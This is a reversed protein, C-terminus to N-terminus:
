GLLIGGAIAVPLVVWGLHLGGLQALQIQAVPATAVPLKIVSATFTQPLPSAIASQPPTVCSAIASSALLATALRIFNRAKRSKPRM